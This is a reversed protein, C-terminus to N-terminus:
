GGASSGGAPRVFRVTLAGTIPGGGEGVLERRNTFMGGQEKAIQEYLSAALVMNGKDEAREAMRTLRRVRVSRLAASARVREEDFAKRYEGFIEKWRPSPKGHDPHYGHVQQRSVTIGYEDKVDAIITAPRDYYALRQVIFHQQAETLKAM